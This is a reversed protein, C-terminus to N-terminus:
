APVLGHQRAPDLSCTITRDISIPIPLSFRSEDNETACQHLIILNFSRDRNGTKLISSNSVTTTGALVVFPKTMVVVVGDSVIAAQTVAIFVAVAVM